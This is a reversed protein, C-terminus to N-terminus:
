RRSRCAAHRRCCPYCPYLYCPRRYLYHIFWIQHLADSRVLLNTKMRM